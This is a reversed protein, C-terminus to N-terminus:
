AVKGKNRDSDRTAEQGAGNACRGSWRLRGCEVILREYGLHELWVEDRTTFFVHRLVGSSRNTEIMRMVKRVSDADVGTFPDDMVLMEPGLIFARLLCILKRLGGSVMAPRLREQDNFKFDVALRHAIEDAEDKTCIKHYLLPLTLNDHLTRNAFLGGYEFTYGIRKRFPLFEEFSMQSTDNGNIFYQGAQPQALVALLKLLTSQGHGAPGSILVNRGAPLEFSLNRFIEQGSEYGFTVERFEFSHFLTVPVGAM